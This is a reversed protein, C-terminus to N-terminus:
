GIYWGLQLSYIVAGLIILTAGLMKKPTLKEKLLLVGLIMVIVYGTAEIVGGLSLSVVKMSESMLPLAGFALVYAGIVMPNLYEFIWSKRQKMAAKKLMVQSLSNMVVAM